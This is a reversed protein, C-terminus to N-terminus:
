KPLPWNWLLFLIINECKKRNKGNLNTGGLDAHNSFLCVKSENGWRKQINKVLAM